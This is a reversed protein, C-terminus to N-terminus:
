RSYTLVKFTNRYFTNAYWPSVTATIKKAYDASGEATVAYIKKSKPDMTLSRVGANTGLAEVPRYTDADVQEIVNMIANVGNTLFIRKLGPDYGIGENGGGVEATFIVTGTDANAAALAASALKKM